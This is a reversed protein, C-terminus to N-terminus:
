RSAAPETLPWWPLRYDIRWRCGPLHIPTEPMGQYRSGLRPVIREGEEICDCPETPHLSWDIDALVEEVSLGAVEDGYNTNTHLPADTLVTWGGGIGSMEGADYWPEWDM